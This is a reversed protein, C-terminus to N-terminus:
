RLPNGQKFEWLGKLKKKEKYETNTPFILCLARLFSMHVQPPRGPLQQAIDCLEPIFPSPMMTNQTQIGARAKSSSRPDTM